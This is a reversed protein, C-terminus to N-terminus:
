ARPNAYCYVCSHPCAQTYSGIDVSETCLCDPRQSRDKRVSAAARAPHLEALLRGDICSSAQVGPVDSLFRQSCVHLRLGLAGAISAMRGLIERKEDTAPDHFELGARAFRRVAKEYRQAFSTKLDCLGAAAARRAVTEFIAANTRVAGAERWHVVPDFRLSVRDPRGAIAVLSELQASAADPSPVGPELVTEGLGSVTFHFYAQDYDGLLGKLGYRGEILNTFDKSWLVITHVAAPSLDVERVGGRPGAFRARRSRLAEALWDPFHAVLDTRRSASIVTKMDANM